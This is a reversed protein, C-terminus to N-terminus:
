ANIFDQERRNTRMPGNIKYFPAFSLHTDVFHAFKVLPRQNDVRVFWKEPSSNVFLAV